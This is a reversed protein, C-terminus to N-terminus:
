CRQKQPHQQLQTPEQAESMVSRVLQAAVAVRAATRRATASSVGAAEATEVTAEFPRSCSGRSSALPGRCDEHGVNREAHLRHRAALCPALPARGERGERRAAARGARRRAQRGLPGVGPRCRCRRRPRAVPRAAMACARCRLSQSGTGRVVSQPALQVKRRPSDCDYCCCCCHRCRCCQRAVSEAPLVLRQAAGTAAIAMDILVTSEAAVAVAVAAAAAAAVAAAAAAAAAAVAV